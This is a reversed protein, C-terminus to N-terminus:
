GREFFEMKVQTLRLRIAWHLLGRLQDTSWIAQILVM